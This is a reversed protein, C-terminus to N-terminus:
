VGHRWSGYGDYGMAFGGPPNFGDVIMRLRNTGSDVVYIAEGDHAVGAISTFGLGPTQSDYFVANNDAVVTTSGATKTSALVSTNTYHLLEDGASVLPGVTVMATNIAPTVETFDPLSMQFLYDGNDSSVGYSVYWLNDSDAAVGQDWRLNSASGGESAPLRPIVSTTGDTPDTQQLIWSGVGYVMQDPGVTLSNGQRDFRIPSVAGTVTSVRRLQSGGGSWGSDCAGFHRGNRVYLWYGDTTMQRDIDLTAGSPDADDSCGLIGPVGALLEGVGTTLNIRYIADQQAVFANRGIVVVGKLESFVLPLNDTPDGNGDELTTEITVVVPSDIDIGDDAFPTLGRPLASAPSASRLTLNPGDIIWIKGGDTALADIHGFWAENEVGDADGSAGSGAVTAVSGDSILWRQLYEGSADAGYLYDGASVLVTVDVDLDSTLTAAVEDDLGIEIISSGDLVYLNDVDATIAAPDAGQYIEDVAGTAVTVQRVADSQQTTVYLNGDPAAVIGNAVPIDRAAAPLTVTAGTTLNVQRIAHYPSGSVSCQDVVYAYTQDTAIYDIDTFRALTPDTSDVCGAVNTSGVWT